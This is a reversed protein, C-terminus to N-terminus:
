FPRDRLGDPPFTPETAPNSLCEAISGLGMSEGVDHAIQLDDLWIGEGFAVDYPNIINLYCPSIPADVAKGEDRWWYYLTRVTWLYTYEYATPNKRWGAIREPDVRYRMERSQVIMQAYDLAQRALTLRLRRWDIFGFYFGDVYDYLGYLQVARLATIQATDVIDDYLDIANDPIAGTLAEFEGALNMFDGAMQSLLPAVEASYGPPDHFPNRMDVLGLREPQTYVSDIGLLDKALFSIDDWTEWGQIYGQGNRRVIDSPPNGNILGQILYANELEIWEIILERVQDKVAGFPAVVPKLAERLAELQTTKDMNPDWVARATVVDNIWYAWEWGSSFIMQGDIQGSDSAKGRRKLAVEESAILRLDYLRRDAYVPLFLPVDIDFSVWYATEPHWLVHRRGIEEFMFEKMYGFDTNGYTPAPDDLSYHQVTHPMVGLRSDAYHPLFNFNLPEGTDPDTYNECVQGQSCHVKIYGKAGNHAEDLHRAFENMWQLMVHDGPNTFESTGSETALFDFGAAMLWDVRQRIQALESALNGTERIFRFGHQQELALSADVGAAICWQHSYDVLTALRQQRLTSDGFEGWSEAWLLVWEVHNQRNAVCWELFLEWDPLMSNWSAEDDPGQVGWGNLLDALEIPHMTHIHMGRERWYPKETIDIAGEGATLGDPFVPALPHLFHFGLQELLAYCGFALGINGFGYSNPIMENGNTAVLPCEGITGSRIIFGESGLSTLESDPIITQTSATNGFSLILSDASYGSPLASPDLITVSVNSVESIIETLREEIRDPVNTGFQVITEAMLSPQYFIIFVFFVVIFVHFNFSQLQNRM